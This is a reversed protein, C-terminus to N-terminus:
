CSRLTDELAVWHYYVYHTGDPNDDEGSRTHICPRGEEKSPESDESIHLYWSNMCGTRGQLSPKLVQRFVYRYLVTNLECSLKIRFFKDWVTRVSSTRYIVRPQGHEFSRRLLRSVPRRNLVPLNSSPVSLVNESGDEWPM